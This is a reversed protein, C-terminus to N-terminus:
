CTFFFLFEYFDSKSLLLIIQDWEFSQIQKPDHQKSKQSVM